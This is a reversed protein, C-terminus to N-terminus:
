SLLACLNGLPYFGQQSHSHDQDANVHKNEPAEEENAEEEPTWNFLLGDTKKLLIIKHYSFNMLSPNVYSTM